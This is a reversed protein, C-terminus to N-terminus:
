KGDGKKSTYIILLLCILMTAFLTTQVIMGNLYVWEHSHRFFSGHTAGSTDYNIQIMSTQISADKHMLEHTLTGIM